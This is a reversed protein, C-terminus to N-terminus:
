TNPRDSCWFLAHAPDDAALGTAALVYGTVIGGGDVPGITPFIRVRFAGSPDRVWIARRHELRKGEDLRGWPSLGRSEYSPRESRPLRVYGSPDLLWISRETTVVAVPSPRVDGLVELNDLGSMVQLTWIRQSM